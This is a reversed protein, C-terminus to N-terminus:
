SHKRGEHPRGRLNERLGGRGKPRDVYKEIAKFIRHLIKVDRDELPTRGLIRRVGLLFDEMTKRPKFGVLTLLRHIREYLQETERPDAYRWEFHPNVSLFSSYIEYLVISVAHSLNLAPCDPSTPVTLIVHCRHIQENSLGTRESGFVVAVRSEESVERIQRACEEPLYSPFHTFRKRNTTAVALHVDELAEDLTPYTVASDLIDRAHVALHYADPVRFDCPQVLRLQRFGFNKMVRATSGINGPTQPEVLIVVLSSARASLPNM